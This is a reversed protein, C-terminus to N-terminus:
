VGCWEFLANQTQCQLVRIPFDGARRQNRDGAALQGVALGDGEDAEAAAPEWERVHESFSWFSGGSEGHVLEWVWVLRIRVWRIGRGTARGGRRQAETANCAEHM